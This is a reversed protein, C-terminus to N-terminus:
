QPCKKLDLAFATLKELAEESLHSVMSVSDNDAVDSSIGASGTLFDCIIVKSTYLGSAANIGKETLTIETSPEKTIYGDEILRQTMKVTSPKSVGVLKAVDASRVAGGKQSLKYIAFLYKKQSYTLMIM